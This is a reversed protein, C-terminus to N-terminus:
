RCPKNMIEDFEDIKGNCNNDKGDCIENQCVRCSKGKFPFVSRSSQEPSPTIQFSMWCQYNAPHFCNYITSAMEKCSAVHEKLTPAKATPKLIHIRFLLPNKRAEKPLDFQGQKLYSSDNYRFLFSGDEQLEIPYAVSLKSSQGKWQVVFCGLVFFEKKLHIQLAPPPKCPQEKPITFNARPQCAVIGLLGVVIITIISIHQRTM